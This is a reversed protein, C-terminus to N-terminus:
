GFDTHETNTQCSMCTIKVELKEVVLLSSNMEYLNTLRNQAIVKKNSEISM